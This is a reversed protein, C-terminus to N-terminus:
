CDLSLVRKQFSASPRAAWHVIPLQLETLVEANILKFKRDRESKVDSVFVNNYMDKFGNRAVGTHTEGGREPHPRRTSTRRVSSPRRFCGATGCGFADLEVEVVFGGGVLHAHLDEM